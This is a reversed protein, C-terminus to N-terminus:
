ARREGGDATSKGRHERDEGASRDDTPSSLSDTDQPRKVPDETRHDNRSRVANTARSDDNPGIRAGLSQARPMFALARRDFRWHSVFRWIVWLGGLASAAYMYQTESGERTIVREVVLTSEDELTGFTNVRDDVELPDDANGRATDTELLVFQGHGSARTAIVVPDTDVVFGGLIVQEGVYAEPTPTVDTEDPYVDGLPDGATTGALILSASLLAVLALGIVARGVQGYPEPM